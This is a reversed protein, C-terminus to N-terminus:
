FSGCEVIFSKPLHLLQQKANKKNAASCAKFRKHSQVTAKSLGICAPLWKEQNVGIGVALGPLEHCCFCNLELVCVFGLAHVHGHVLLLTACHYCSVGWAGQIISTCLM